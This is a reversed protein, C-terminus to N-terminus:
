YIDEFIDLSYRKIGADGDVDNDLQNSSQLISLKSDLEISKTEPKLYNKKMVKVKKIM